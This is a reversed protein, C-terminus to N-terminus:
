TSIKKGPKSQMPTDPGKGFTCAIEDLFNGREDFFEAVDEIALDGWTSSSFALLTMSQIIDKPLVSLDQKKLEELIVPELSNIKSNAINKLEKSILRIRQKEEEASQGDDYFKESIGDIKGDKYNGREMLQGNKYFEEYLGHLKGNKYNSTGFNGNRDFQESLGDHKGNKYNERLKLQGKAYFIEVLGHLKGNKYNGRFKLKGNKHFDEQLGHKEGDKYNGETELQGNEHFEGIAGTFPNQTNENYVLGDEENVYTEQQRLKENKAKRLQDKPSEYSALKEMEKSDFIFLEDQNKKDKDTM